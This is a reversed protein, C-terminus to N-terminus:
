NPELQFAGQSALSSLLLLFGPKKLHLTLAENSFYQKGSLLPGAFALRASLPIHRGNVFFIIARGQRLFGIRSGPVRTLSYGEKLRSRIFAKSIKREDFLASSKPETVLEGIVQDFDASNLGRLTDELLRRLDQVSSRPIEGPHQASKLHPDRYHVAPSHAPMLKEHAAAFLQAASPSRFGISYTLCEELAVGYHALNPPLYLMDGPELIWDDEAQFKKLIRLDLGPRLDRPAQSDLRWRRRGQGQILFVDYSDIHPGVTGARAAFSIMVDDVRWDPIFRFPNLLAAVAPVSQDVGQVLLTWHSKPLKRLRAAKQPGLVVQWPKTGGREMVLRSEVTEECALGALEDPTIPDKWVAFAQRVLLPRKQWYHTLFHRPNIARGAIRRRLEDSALQQFRNNM